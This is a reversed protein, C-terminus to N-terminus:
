GGANQRQEPHPPDAASDPYRRGQEAEPRPDEKEFRNVTDEFDRVVQASMADGKATAEAHLQPLTIEQLEKLKEEGAAIYIQLERFYEWTKKM